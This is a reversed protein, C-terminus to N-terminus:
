EKGKRPPNPKTTKKKRAREELFSRELAVLCVSESNAEDPHLVHSEEEHVVEFGRANEEM